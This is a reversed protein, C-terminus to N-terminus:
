KIIIPPYHSWFLSLFFHLISFLYSNPVNTFSAVSHFRSKWQLSGRMEWIRVFSLCGSMTQYTQNIRCNLIAHSNKSIIITRRFLYSWLLRRQTHTFATTTTSGIESFPNHFFSSKRHLSPSSANKIPEQFDYDPWLVWM